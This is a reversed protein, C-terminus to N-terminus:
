PAAGGEHIGTKPDVQFRVWEESPSDWALGEVLGASERLDKIGDWSLHETRWLRGDRAFGAIRSRDALVIWGAASATVVHEIRYLEIEEWVSPDDAVVVYGAGRSVVCLKEGDPWGFLGSLGGIFGFAFVGLWKEGEAPEVAVIVGDRGRVGTGGPFYLIRQPFSPLEELLKASYSKKFCFEERM